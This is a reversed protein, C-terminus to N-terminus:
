SSVRSLQQHELPHVLPMVRNPLSAEHGRDTDRDRHLGRLTATRALVVQRPKLAVGAAARLYTTFEQPFFADKWNSAKLLAERGLVLISSHHWPEVRPVSIRPM